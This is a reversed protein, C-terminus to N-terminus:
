LENHDTLFDLVQQDIEPDSLHNLQRKRGEALEARVEPKLVQQMAAAISDPDTPDVYLAGEGAVERQSGGPGCIVPTDNIYAEAIALGYGEFLSVYVMALSEAITKMKDEESLYGALVVRNNLGLEEILPKYVEYGKGILVLKYPREASQNFEHLARIINDIRKRADVGGVYVFQDKRKAAPEVAHSRDLKILSATVSKWPAFRKIDRRSAESITIIRRAKWIAALQPVVYKVLNIDPRRALYTMPFRFPILDLLGLCLQTKGFYLVPLGVNSGVFYVDYDSRRLHKPLRRQAWLFRSLKGGNHPLIVQEYADLFSGTPLAQDTVLTVQHRTKALIQLISTLYITYGNTPGYFPRADIAIKM